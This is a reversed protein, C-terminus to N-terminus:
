KKESRHSEQFGLVQEESTEGVLSVSAFDVPTADM